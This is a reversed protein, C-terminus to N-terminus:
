KKKIKKDLLSAIELGAYFGLGHVVWWWYPSMMVGFIEFPPPTYRAYLGLWEQL